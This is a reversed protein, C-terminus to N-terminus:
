YSLTPCMGKPFQAVWFRSNTDENVQSSDTRESSLSCTVGLNLAQKHCIFDRPFHVPHVPWFVGSRGPSVACRTCIASGHPGSPPQLTPRKKKRCPHSGLLWTLRTQPPPRSTYTHLSLKRTPVLFLVLLFSVWLAKWENRHMNGKSLSATNITHMQRCHISPRLASLM